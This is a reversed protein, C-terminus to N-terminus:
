RAHLVVFFWAHVSAPLHGGAAGGSVGFGMVGRQTVFLGPVRETITPLINTRENATLAQRDVVTVTVPLNRSTTASRTGTVVAENLISDNQSFANASLALAFAAFLM